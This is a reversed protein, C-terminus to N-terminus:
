VEQDVWNQNVIYLVLQSIWHPTNDFVNIAIVNGVLDFLDFM